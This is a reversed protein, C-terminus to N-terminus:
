ELWASLDRGLLKQLKRIDDRFLYELKRREHISIPPSPKFFVERVFERIQQRASMPLLRRLISRAAHEGNFLDHIPNENDPRKTANSHLDPDPEFDTTVGIFEFIERVVQVPNRVFDEYIIVKIQDPSFVDYYRALQEFYLGMDRYRLLLSSNEQIRGPEAELGEALTKLPELGYSKAMNFSSYARDVPNRLSVILKMKPNFEFIREATGPMYLYSVSSEGAMRAGRHNAFLKAYAERSTIWSHVPRTRASKVSTKDAGFSFYHPEKIASMYVEPHRACHTHLTYTGSKAAGIILFNPFETM